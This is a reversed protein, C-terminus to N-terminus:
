PKCRGPSSKMFDERDMVRKGKVATLVKGSELGKLEKGTFTVSGDLGREGIVGRVGATYKGSPDLETLTANLAKWGEPVTFLDVQGPSGKRTGSAILWSKHVNKPADDRM